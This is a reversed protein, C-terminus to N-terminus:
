DYIQSYSHTSPHLNKKGRNKPGGHRVNATNEHKEAGLGVLPLTAFDVVILFTLNLLNPGLVPLTGSIFSYRLFSIRRRFVLHM